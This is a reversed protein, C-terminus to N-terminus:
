EEPFSLIGYDVLSYGPFVPKLKGDLLRILSPNEAHDLAQRLEFYYIPAEWGAYAQKTLSLGIGALVGEADYSYVGAPSVSDLEWDTIRQLPIASYIADEDNTKISFQVAWRKDENAVLTDARKALQDASRQILEQFTFGLPVIEGGPWYQWEYVETDNHDDARLLWFDEGGNDGILIYREQIEEPLYKAREILDGTRYYLGFVIDQHFGFIGLFERFYGPLPRALQQELDAIEAEPVGHYYVKDQYPILQQQIEQFFALM